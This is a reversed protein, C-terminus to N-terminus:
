GGFCGKITIGSLGAKSEGPTSRTSSIFDPPQPCNHRDHAQQNANSDRLGVYLALHLPAQLGLVPLHPLCSSGPVQLGVLRTLQHARRESASVTELLMSLSLPLHRTDVEPKRVHVCVCMCVVYWM